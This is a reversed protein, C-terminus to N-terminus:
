FGSLVGEGVPPTTSYIESQGREELKQLLPRPLPPKKSFVRGEGGGRWCSASTPLLGATL